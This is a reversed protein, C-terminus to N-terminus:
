SEITIAYLQPSQQRFIGGSFIVKLCFSNPLAQNSSWSLRQNLGPEIVPISENTTFGPLENGNADTLAYKLMGYEVFNDCNLSLVADPSIGTLLKTRLFGQRIGQFGIDWGVKLAAYGFHHLPLRAIGAAMPNDYPCNGRINGSFYLITEKETEAMGQAQLIGGSNWSNVPGRRLYSQWPAPLRWRIGDNSIALDVETYQDPLEPADMFRGMLGLYTKGVKGLPAVGVHLQNGTESRYYYPLKTWDKLDESIFFSMVREYTPCDSWPPLQQGSLIYHGDVKQLRCAELKELIVPQTQHEFMWHIGDRSTAIGMFATMGPLNDAAKRLLPDSLMEKKLGFIDCVPAKFLGDDDLIVSISDGGEPFGEVLNNASSGNFSVLDLNPKVWNIGDESEAYAARANFRLNGDFRPFALYWMRYKGINLDFLVTGGLHIRGEDHSGADGRPLSLLEEMVPEQLSISLGSFEEFLTEDIALITRQTM